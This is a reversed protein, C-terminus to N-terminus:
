GRLAHSVSVVEAFMEGVIFVNACAMIEGMQPGFSLIVISFEVRISRSYNRKRFLIDSNELTLHDASWCESVLSEKRGSTYIDVVMANAGDDLAFRNCANFRAGRFVALHAPMYLLGGEAVRAHIEQRSVIM